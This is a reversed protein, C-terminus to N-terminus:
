QSCAIWEAIADPDESILDVVPVKDFIRDDWPINMETVVYKVDEYKDLAKLLIVKKEFHLDKKFEVHFLILNHCIGKDVLPIILIAREDLSGKGVFIKNKAVVSKKRGILLTGKDARSMLNSAIGSKYITIIRSTDSPYGLSDLGIIDYKTCGTITEVSSTISQLIFINQYTVGSLSINEEKLKDFIVGEPVEELRSIGVTVTKAQHKIADIPRTLDAIASSLCNISENLINSLTGIKGFDVEFDDISIKGQLYKFLLSLQTANHVELCSNYRGKRLLSYFENCPSYLKRSLAEIINRDQYVNMKSSKILADVTIIRINKLLNSSEEIARAAYYGWLHGVM